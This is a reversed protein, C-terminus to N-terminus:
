PRAQKETLLGAMYLDFGGKGQPRNSSFLGLHYNFGYNALTIPRYEDYTTNIRSGMNEPKGWQVGDYKAYYIDFGGYSDSRNSTFYLINNWFGIPVHPCKDDAPSSLQTNKTVSLPTKSLLTELLKTKDNPLNAEFIDFNGERNSCFYVKSFDQNFAPYADDKPSNLWTVEFPGEVTDKDNFNHVFKIQLNGSADDAYLLIYKGNYRVTGSDFIQRDFSYVVPGLVNCDQNAKRVLLQYYYENQAIDLSGRIGDTANLLDTKEDYQLEFPKMVLNFLEKRDRKSSFILFDSGYKNQPLASNYDDFESNFKELNVPSELFKGNCDQFVNTPCSTMLLVFGLAVGFSVLRNM